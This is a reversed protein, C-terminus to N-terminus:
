ANGGYGMDCICHGSQPDCTGYHCPKCEESCNLGWHWNDCSETCYRGQFLIYTVHSSTAYNVINDERDCFPVIKHATQDGIGDVM